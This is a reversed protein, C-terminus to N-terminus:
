RRIIRSEPIGIFENDKSVASLIVKSNESTFVNNSIINGNGNIVIDNDVINNMIINGDGNIVISDASSNAFSNGIIRNNNGELYLAPVATTSPQRESNHTATPEYYWFTGAADFVNNRIACKSVKYFCVAAKPYPNDKPFAGGNRVFYTDSIDLNHVYAKEGNAFFGYSPTDAVICHCFRAYYSARPAFYIGICCGDANIKEFTCADIEATGTVVVAAALGCCSVKSVEAQDVRKSCFCIGASAAPNEYNFMGRTDMGVIDGQIGIDKIINGGIVNERSMIIAPIDLRTHRLKTGYKSEFVGNPDASYNWVEGEIKICPTDVVIPEVINYKGVPLYIRGGNTLKALELNIETSNNM